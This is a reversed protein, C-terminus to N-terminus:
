FVIEFCLLSRTKVHTHAVGRLNQIFAKSHHQLQFAEVCERSVNFFYQCLSCRRVSPSVFFCLPSSVQPLVCLLFPPKVIM